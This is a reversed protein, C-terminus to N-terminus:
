HLFGSKTARIGGGDVYKNINITARIYDGKKLDREARLVIRAKGSMIMKEEVESFMEAARDKPLEERILAALDETFVECKEKGLKLGLSKPGARDIELDSTGSLKTIAYKM